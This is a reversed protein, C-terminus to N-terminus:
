NNFLDMYYQYSPITFIYQDNFINNIFQDIHFYINNENYKIRLISINNYLCFNNKIIDCLITDKNFRFDHINNHTPGDYEIIAFKLKNNINFLLLFDAYLPHNKVRFIPLTFHNFVCLLRNDKIDILKNFIDIEPKTFKHVIKYNNNLKKILETLINKEIDNSILIIKEISNITNTKFNQVSLNYEFIQEFSYHKSIGINNLLDNNFLNEPSSSLSLITVISFIILLYLTIKKIIKETLM